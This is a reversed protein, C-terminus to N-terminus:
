FFDATFDQTFVAPFVSFSIDENVETMLAKYFPGQKWLEVSQVVYTVGSETVEDAVDIFTETWLVRWDQTLQGEPANTM